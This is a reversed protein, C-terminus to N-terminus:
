STGTRGQEDLEEISTDFLQDIALAWPPRLLGLAKIDQAWQGFPRARSFSAGGIVRGLRTLVSEALESIALKGHGTAWHASDIEHLSALMGRWAQEALWADNNARVWEVREYARSGDGRRRMLPTAENIAADLVGMIVSSFITMIIASVCPVLELAQGPRAYREASMGDLRFAHSQTAAMGYGDWERMLKMGNSGDWVLGATRMLFVEPLDEGIPKAVTLMRATIGSGSGMHKDGTLRFALPGADPDASAKTKTELLNGGSGPESAMTGWFEGGLATDFVEDCQTSWAGGRENAAFSWFSMVTPHMACVLALSPDVSAINRVLRACVRTSAQASSWLGGRTEPVGCLTFGAAALQEFDARDLARRTLRTDREPALSRVVSDVDACVRKVRASLDSPLPM